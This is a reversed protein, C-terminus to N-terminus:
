GKAQPPSLGLVRCVADAKATTLDATGQLYRRLADDSVAGDTAKAIALPNLNLAAARAVVAARITEPQRKTAM